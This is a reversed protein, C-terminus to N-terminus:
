MCLLGKQLVRIEVLYHLQCALWRRTDHIISSTLERRSCLCM